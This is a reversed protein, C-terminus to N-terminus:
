ITRAYKLIEGKMTCLTLVIKGKVEQASIKMDKAILPEVDVLKLSTKAIRRSKDQLEQLQYESIQKKYLWNQEICVLAFNLAVCAVLANPIGIYNRQQNQLQPQSLDHAIFTSGDPERIVCAM